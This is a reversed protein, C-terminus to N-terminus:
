SLRAMGEHTHVICVLWIAAVDQVQPTFVPIARTCIAPLVTHDGQQVYAM